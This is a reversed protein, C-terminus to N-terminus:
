SSGRPKWDAATKRESQPRYVTLKLGTNFIRQSKIINSTYTLLFLIYLNNQMNKNHVKRNRDELSKKKM